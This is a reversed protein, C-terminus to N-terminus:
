LTIPVQIHLYGDNKLETKLQAIDCTPFLTVQRYSHEALLSLLIIQRLIIKWYDDFKCTQRGDQNTVKNDVEVRLDYGNLSIKVQDSTVGPKMQLRMHLIKKGNPGDTLSPNWTKNQLFEELTYM